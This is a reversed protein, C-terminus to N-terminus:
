LTERTLECDGQFISDRMFMPMFLMNSNAPVEVTVKVTRTDREIITPEVDITANRAGVSQLVFNTAERIKTENTGPLIGVRAGEYAAARTAHRLFNARSLEYAGFLFLFLLPLTLAMEVTVAGTRRTGLRVQGSTKSDITSTCRKRVSATPRQPYQKM